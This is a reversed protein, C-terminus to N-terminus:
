PLLVPEARSPAGRQIWAAALPEAPLAIFGEPSRLVSALLCMDSLCMAHCAPKISCSQQSTETYTTFLWSIRVSRVAALPLATEDTFYLTQKKVKTVYQENRLRSEVYLIRVHVNRANNAWTCWQLGDEEWEHATWSALFSNRTAM